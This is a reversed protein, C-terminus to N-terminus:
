FDVEMDVEPPLTINEEPNAQQIVQDNQIIQQKMESLTPTAIPSPSPIVEQVKTKKTPSLLAAVLLLIIFAGVIVTITLKKQLGTQTPQPMEPPAQLVAQSGSFTSQDEIDVM